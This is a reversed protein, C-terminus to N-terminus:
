RLQFNRAYNTVDVSYLFCMIKLFDANCINFLPKHADYEWRFQAPRWYSGSQRITESYNKCIHPKQQRCCLFRMTDLKTAWIFDVLHTSFGIFLKLATSSQTFFINRMWCFCNWVFIDLTLLVTHDIAKWIHLLM